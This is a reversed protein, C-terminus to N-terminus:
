SEQLGIALCGNHSHQLHGLAEKVLALEGHLEKLINLEQSM